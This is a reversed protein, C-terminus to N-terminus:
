YSISVFFIELFIFIIFNGEEKLMQQEHKNVMHQKMSKRKVEKGCIPCIQNINPLPEKRRKKVVGEVNQGEHMAAIHPKLSKIRMEKYCIPCSTMKPALEDDDNKEAKMLKINHESKFHSKIEKAWIKAECM